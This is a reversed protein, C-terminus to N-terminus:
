HLVENMSHTSDFPRRTLARGRTDPGAVGYESALQLDRQAFVSRRPPHRRNVYRQGVASKSKMPDDRGVVSLSIYFCLRAQLGAGCDSDSGCSVNWHVLLLRVKRTTGHDERRSGKAWNPGGEEDKLGLKGM